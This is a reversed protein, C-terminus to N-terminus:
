HLTRPALGILTEALQRLALQNPEGSAALPWDGVVIVRTPLWHESLGESQLLPGLTAHGLAQCTTLVTLGGEDLELVLHREGPWHQYLLQELTALSVWENGVRTHRTLRGQFRWGGGTGVSVLDGTYWWGHADNGRWLGPQDAVALADALHPAQVWLLEGRGGGTAAELRHRLGPLPYSEGPPRYGQPHEVAVVAGLTAPVHFELPRCGVRELWRQRAERALTGAPIWVERLSALQRATAARYCPELANGTTILVRAGSRQVATPLQEVSMGPTGEVSCLGHLLPLLRGALLGLPHTNPLLCLITSGPTPTLLARLQAIGTLLNRHSFRLARSPEGAPRSFVVLAPDDAQIGPYRPRRLPPSTDKLDELHVVQLQRGLHERHQDLRGRPHQERLTLILGLHVTDCCALLSRSDLRPDLLVPVRGLRQLALILILGLTGNQLLLGVQRGPQSTLRRCWFDVQQLLQRYTLPTQPYQQLIARRQGHRRAAGRLAALLTTDTPMAAFILDRLLTELRQRTQELPRAEAGRDLPPLRRIPLLTLRLWPWGPSHEIWVPLVPTDTYLAALAAVSSSVGGPWGDASPIGEPFVALRRGELLHHRLQDLQEGQPYERGLCRLPWGRFGTLPPVFWLRWPLTLALALADLPSVHNAVILLPGDATPRQGRRSIGLAHRFLGRYGDSWWGSM